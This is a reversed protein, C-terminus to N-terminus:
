ARAPLYDRRVARVLAWLFVLGIGLLVITIPLVYWYDEPREGTIVAYADSPAGRVAYVGVLDIQADPISAGDVVMSGAPSTKLQGWTTTGKRTVAEVRTAVLKADALKKTVGAVPQAIDFRLRDSGILTAPKTPALGAQTLAATWAEATPLRETIAAIISAAGPDVVEIAVRDGDAVSTGDLTGTTFGARVAAPPAFLPRPKADVLSSAFPLDALKRLRGVYVFGSPAQWGDGPLVIWLRDSTGRVPAVRLGSENETQSARMAGAIVPEAAVSVYSDIDVNGAVIQAASVKTPKSDNGAFRRDPSLKIAFVAVLAVIGASTVAGIKLRSRALKVLDPDIENKSIPAGPDPDAAM